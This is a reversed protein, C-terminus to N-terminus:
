LTDVAIRTGDARFIRCDRLKHKIEADRETRGNQWGFHNGNRWGDAWGANHSPRHPTNEAQRRGEEIGQKRGQERGIKYNDKAIQDMDGKTYALGAEEVLRLAMNFGIVKGRKWGSQEAELEDFMTRGYKNKAERFGDAHGNKYARDYALQKVQEIDDHHNRKGQKLGHQYGRLYGSENGAVHAAASIESYARPAFRAIINTLRSEYSM